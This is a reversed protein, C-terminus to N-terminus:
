VSPRCSGLLKGGGAAGSTDDEACLGKWRKFSKPASSSAIAHSKSETLRWTPRLALQLNEAIHPESTAGPICVVGQQIAWQLLVQVSTANHAAAVAAVAGQAGRNRNKSGGLSGYVIVVIGQSRCWRVLELTSAGVWPHFEIENFAPTM